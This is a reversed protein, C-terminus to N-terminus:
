CLNEKIKETMLVHYLKNLETREDVYENLLEYVSKFHEPDIKKYQTMIENHYMGLNRISPSGYEINSTIFETTYVISNNKTPDRYSDSTIRIIYFSDPNSDIHLFVDGIKIEYGAEEKEIRAIQREADEIRKKYEDILVNLEDKTMEDLELEVNM